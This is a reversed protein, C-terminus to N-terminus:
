FIGRPYYLDEIEGRTKNTPKQMIHFCCELPKSIIRNEQNTRKLKLECALKETISEMVKGGGLNKEKRPLFFVEKRLIKTANKETNQTTGDPIM